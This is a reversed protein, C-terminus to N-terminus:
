CRISLDARKSRLASMSSERLFTVDEGLADIQIMVAIGVEVDDGIGRGHSRVLYQLEIVSVSAVIEVQNFEIGIDTVAVVSVKIWVKEKRSTLTISKPFRKDCRSVTKTRGCIERIAEEWDM